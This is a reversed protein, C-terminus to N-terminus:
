RRPSQELSLAFMPHARSRTIELADGSVPIVIRINRDFSLVISFRSLSSVDNKKDAGWLELPSENTLKQRYLTQIKPTGMDQREGRFRIMVRALVKSESGYELIGALNQNDKSEPFPISAMDSRYSIYRKLADSHTNPVEIQFLPGTSTFAKVGTMINFFIYTAEAGCCGQKTIRYFRGDVEAEDGDQEITWLKENPSADKGIWAQTTVSGQQGEAALIRESHFDELLLLTRVQDDPINDAYMRTFTFRRNSTSVVVGKEKDIRTAISSTTTRDIGDRNQAAMQAAGISFITLVPIIKGCIKMPM